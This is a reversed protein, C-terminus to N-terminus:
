RSKKSPLRSFLKLQGAETAETEKLAEFGLLFVQTLTMERATAWMKMEHRLSRPIKFSVGVIEDHDDDHEPLM